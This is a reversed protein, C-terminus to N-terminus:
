KGPWEVIFHLRTSSYETPDVSWGKEAVFCCGDNIPPAPLRTFASSEGSIWIPRGQSIVLGLWVDAIKGSQMNKIFNEEEQSTLTLLHGGATECFRRAEQWGM